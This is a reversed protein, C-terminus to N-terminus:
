IGSYKSEFEDLLVLIDPKTTTLQSSQNEELVTTPLEGEHFLSNRIEKTYGVSREAKIETEIFTMRRKCEGLNLVTSSVVESSTSLMYSLGMLILDATTPKVDKTDSRHDKSVNKHRM